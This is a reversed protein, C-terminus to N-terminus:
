GEVITHGIGMHLLKCVEGGFTDEVENLFPAGVFDSSSINELDLQMCLWLRSHFTGSMCHRGLIKYRLTCCGALVHYGGQMHTHGEKRYM